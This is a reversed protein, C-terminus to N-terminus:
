RERSARGGYRLTPKDQEEKPYGAYIKVVIIKQIKLVVGYINGPVTCFVYQVRKISLICLELAGDM